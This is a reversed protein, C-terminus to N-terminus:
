PGGSDERAASGLVSDLGLWKAQPQQSDNIGSGQPWWGDGKGAQTDPARAPGPNLCAALGPGSLQDEGQGVTPSLGLASHVFLPM